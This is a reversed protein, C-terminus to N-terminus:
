VRPFPRVGRAPEVGPVRIGGAPGHASGIPRDLLSICDYRELYTTDPLVLDAYPVTESFYADALIVFPIRYSDDANRDTLLRMAEGPNMASNWALNAMFIFLTDIKQHTQAHAEGIALHMLGHAALPAEWSYARDIRLPEGAADVLLDEPGKPFGLPLGALSGDANRAKGGPASGGPIPKPYPTKYRSSGPTDVAGILMQLVHIARCTPFGNSH